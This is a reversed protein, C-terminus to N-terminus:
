PKVHFSLSATNAEPSKFGTGVNAFVSLNELAQWTLGVKPSIHSYDSTKVGGGAGSTEMDEGYLVSVGSPVDSLKDESKGATVVIQDM